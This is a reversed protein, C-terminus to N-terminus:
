NAEEKLLEPIMKHLQEMQDGGGIAMARVNGKRDLLFVTPIATIGLGEAIKSTATPDSESFLQTWTMEPNQELFAKLPEASRDLSVALIEFGQDHYAKYDEKVKPLAAICPGCWTAWFDVMVVKGKFDAVSVTGGGLKEGEFSLPKDMFKAMFDREAKQAQEMQQLAAKLQDATPGKLKENIIKRAATAVESDREGLSAMGIAAQAVAVNEANDTALADLENVAALKGASDDAGIFHGLALAAKADVEESAQLKKQTEDDGFGVLIAEVQYVGGRMQEAM